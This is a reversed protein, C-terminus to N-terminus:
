KKASTLKDHAANVAAVWRACVDQLHILPLCICCFCCGCTVEPTETPRCTTVKMVADAVGSGLTECAMTFMTGTGDDIPAVFATDQL